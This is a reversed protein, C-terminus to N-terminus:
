YIPARVRPIASPDKPLNFKERIREYRTKWLSQTIVADIKPTDKNSRSRKRKSGKSTAVSRTPSSFAKSSVKLPSSAAKTPTQPTTFPSSFTEVRLMTVPRVNGWFLSSANISLRLKRSIAKPPSSM